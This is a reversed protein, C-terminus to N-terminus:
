INDFVHFSENLADEMDYSLIETAIHTNAFANTFVDNKCILSMRKVQSQSTIRIENKFQSIIRNIEELNGKHLWYINLYLRNRTERVGMLPNVGFYYRWYKRGTRCYYMLSLISIYQLAVTMTTNSVHILKKDDSKYIATVKDYSAYQDIVDLFPLVPRLAFCIGKEGKEPCIPCLGFDAVERVEPQIRTTDAWYKKSVNAIESEILSLLTLDEFLLYLGKQEYNNLNLELTKNEKM